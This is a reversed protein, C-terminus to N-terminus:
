RRNSKRHRETPGPGRDAGSESLSRKIPHRWRWLRPPVVNHICLGYSVAMYISTALMFSAGYTLVAWSHLGDDVRVIRFVAAVVLLHAAPLAFALILAARGLQVRRTTLALVPRPSPRYSNTQAFLPAFHIVFITLAESRTIASVGHDALAAGYMVGWACTALAAYGFGYQEVRRGM